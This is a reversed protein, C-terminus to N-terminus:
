NWGSLVMPINTNIFCNHPQVLHQYEAVSQIRSSLNTYYKQDVHLESTCLWDDQNFHKRPCTLIVKLSEVADTLVSAFKNGSQLFTQIQDQQAKGWSQNAVLVPMYVDSLLAKYTMLANASIDGTAM